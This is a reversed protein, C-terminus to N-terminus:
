TIRQLFNIVVNYLVRVEITLTLSSKFKPVTHSLECTPGPLYRFCDYTVLSMVTTKGKSTLHKNYVYVEGFGLDQGTVSTKDPAPLSTKQRDAPPFGKSEWSVFLEGSNWWERERGGQEGRRGRNQESSVARGGRQCEM